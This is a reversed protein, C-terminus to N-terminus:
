GLATAIWLQFSYRRLRLSAVGAFDVALGANVSDERAFDTCIPPFYSFVFDLRLNLGTQRWRL